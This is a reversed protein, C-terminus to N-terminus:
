EIHYPGPPLYPKCYDVARLPQLGTSSGMLVINGGESQTKMYHVGLVATNILGKLSVDIM